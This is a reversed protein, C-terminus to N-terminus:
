ANQRHLLSRKSCENYIRLYADVMLNQDLAEVARQRAAQSMSMRKRADGALARIAAAFAGIDDQPCLIGTVGDVVVEQLSSGRTAVLPLGCAMAEAAVLGFGESRSPFLLIDADCMAAVVADDGRLRGLDHTNEAMVVRNRLAADGGTFHLEFGEGLLRMIPALLDVGKLPAWKGVYLLRVSRQVERVPGPKFKDLDVGNFVVTMPRDLVVRRATKEAFRSVAVLIDARQMTRREIPIMWHKHYLSQLWRKYPAADPHHTAHHLTAVVPLNRPLFRPHLGTNVHVVTAWSPPEPVTVSWPAFEARHPLWNIEARIGRRCLEDVLRRTFVDAGSGAQLAPFWIGPAPSM